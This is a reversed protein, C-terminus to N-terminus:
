MSDITRKAIRLAMAKDSFGDCLRVRTNGNFIKYTWLFVLSYSVEIRYDGYPRSYTQREM